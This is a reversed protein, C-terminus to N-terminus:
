SEPQSEFNKPRQLNKKIELGFVTSLPGSLSDPLSSGLFWGIGISAAGDL